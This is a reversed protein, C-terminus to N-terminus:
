KRGDYVKAAATRLILEVSLPVGVCVLCEVGGGCGQLIMGLFICLSPSLFAFSLWIDLRWGMGNRRGHWIM